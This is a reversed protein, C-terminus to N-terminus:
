EDDGGEDLVVGLSDMLHDTFDVVVSGTIIATMLLSQIRDNDGSTFVDKLVLVAVISGGEGKGNEEADMIFNAVKSYDDNSPIVATVVKTLRDKAEPPTMKRAKDMGLVDIAIDLRKNLSILFLVSDVVMMVLDETTKVGSKADELSDPIDAQEGYFFSPFFARGERFLNLSASESDIFPRPQSVM